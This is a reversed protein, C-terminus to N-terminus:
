ERVEFVHFVLSDNLQFTAIYEVYEDLIEHGTGVVTFKRVVSKAKTDPVLVWLEPAQNQMQVTLPQAGAPMLINFHHVGRVPYKWVQKSVEM